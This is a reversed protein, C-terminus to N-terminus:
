GFYAAYIADTAPKVVRPNRLVYKDKMGTKHGALLEAFKAEVGLANAAAAYGGDRLHNFTVGLPELSKVRLMLYNVLLDDCEAAAIKDALVSMPVMRKKQDEENGPKAFFDIYQRAPADWNPNHSGVKDYAALMAAGNKQATEADLRENRQRFAMRRKQRDAIRELTEAAGASIDRRRAAAEIEPLQMEAADEIRMAAATAHMEDGSSLQEIWQALSQDDTTASWASAAIGLLIAVMVRRM